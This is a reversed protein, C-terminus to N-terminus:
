NYLFMRLSSETFDTFHCGNRVGELTGRKFSTYIIGCPRFTRIPLKSGLVDEHRTQLHLRHGARERIATAAGRVQSCEVNVISETFAAAHAAYYALTLTTPTASNM